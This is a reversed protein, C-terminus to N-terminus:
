INGFRHVIVNQTIIAQTGHLPLEILYTRRLDRMSIRILRGESAVWVDGCHQALAVVDGSVWTDGAVRLDPGRM